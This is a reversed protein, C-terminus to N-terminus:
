HAREGGFRLLLLSSYIIAATVGINLLQALEPRLWNLLLNLMLITSCFGVIHALLFKPIDEKHTDRSQFSWARNLIYSLCVGLCYCVAAALDPRVALQLLLLFALYLVCNSTIGVIGYRVLQRRDRALASM